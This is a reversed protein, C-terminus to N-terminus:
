EEVVNYLVIHSAGFGPAFAPLACVLSFVGKAAATHGTFRLTQVLNSSGNSSRTQSQHLAGDSKITAMTCTVDATPNVDVVKIEARKLRGAEIDKTVPCTVSTTQSGSSAIAGDPSRFLPAISSFSTAQCASGPLAKGHRCVVHRLVADYRRHEEHDNECDM